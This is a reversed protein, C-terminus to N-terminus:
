PDRLCTEGGDSSRFLGAPEAGAYIVDRHAGDSPTVNWVRTVAPEGEGYTLGASSHTWTAGLDASRWVAPGFWPSGAGALITGTRADFCVDYVPWGECLPESVTWDRRELDSELLFAGKKTGVLLLVRRAM